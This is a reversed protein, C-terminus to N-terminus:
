LAEQQLALSFTSKYRELRAIWDMTEQKEMPWKLARELNKLKSGTSGQHKVLFEYLKELQDKCEQIPGELRDPNIHVISGYKEGQLNSCLSNLVGSLLALESVLVKVEAPLDITSQIYVIGLQIVNGAIQCITIGGIALSFPDM